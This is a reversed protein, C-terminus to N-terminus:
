VAWPLRPQSSGGPAVGAGWWVRLTAPRRARGGFMRASLGIGIRTWLARMQAPVDLEEPERDRSQLVLLALLRSGVMMGGPAKEGTSDSACSARSAIRARSYSGAMGHCVYTCELMPRVRQLRTPEHDPEPERVKGVAATAAAVCRRRHWLQESKAAM